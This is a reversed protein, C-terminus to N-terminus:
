EDSSIKKYENNIMIRFLQTINFGAIQLSTVKKRDEDSLKILISHILNKTPKM